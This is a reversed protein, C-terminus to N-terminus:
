LSLIEPELSYSLLLSFLLSELLFFPGIESCDLDLADSDQCSRRRMLARLLGAVLGGSVKSESAHVKPIVRAPFGQVGQVMLSLGQATFSSGSDSSGLVERRSTFLM